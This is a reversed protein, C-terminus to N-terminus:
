VIVSKALEKAHRRWQQLAEYQEEHEQDGDGRNLIIAEIDDASYKTRIIASVLHSYDWNFINGEATHYRYQISGDEQEVEEIDFNFVRKMGNTEVMQPQSNSYNYNM